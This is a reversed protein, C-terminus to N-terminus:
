TLKPDESDACVMANDCLMDNAVKAFDSGTESLKALRVAKIVPEDDPM